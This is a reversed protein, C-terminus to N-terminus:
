QPNKAEKLEAVINAFIIIEDQMKAILLEPAPINFTSLKIPFEAKALLKQTDPNYTIRVVAAVTRTVGAITLDGKVILTIANNPIEGKDKVAVSTSVFHVKSFRSANILKRMKSDRNGMGTKMTMVRFSIEVKGTGSIDKPNGSIYGKVRTTKGEFRYPKAVAKFGLVSEGPIIEFVGFVDPAEEISSAKDPLGEIKALTLTAAFATLLFLQVFVKFTNIRMMRGQSM